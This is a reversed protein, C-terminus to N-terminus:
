ALTYDGRLFADAYHRSAEETHMLADIQRTFGILRGITELRVETEARPLKRLRGVVLDGSQRAAFDLHELIERVLTARRARREPDSAGGVFRFYVHNAEREDCLYADVMTYHYGLNLSLNVYSDSVVALNRGSNQGATRSTASALFTRFGVPVPRTSWVGPATLGAWLLRMPASRVADPRVPAGAPLTAVGPHLGGGVDIIRLNLPIEAELQRATEAGSVGGGAILAIIEEVAKEHSFRIVDHLTRCRDPRFQDSQPDVLELPTIRRLIRRLLRYEPADEIGPEELLQHLLLEEVRGRYVVIDDADITVEMGAPLRSTADGCDVIAPVRFERALAAMHGTPAGIDTVIAAIRPMVRVFHPSSRRAVLVAGPPVADLNGDGQLIHVRGVAVGRCAIHGRGELLIERARLVEPLNRPAGRRTVKLRRAQIVFLTGDADRAWEIDQPQKFYREIRLAMAALATAEDRALGPVVTVPAPAGTAEPGGASPRLTADHPPERSLTYTSFSRIGAVARDALGPTAGLQMLGSEPREPEVTYLVGATTAEVMRMCAVAMLGFASAGCAGRYSCAEPSYLSALVERYADVVGEVPVHLVTRYQGAFSLDDDEGLASSRVALRLPRGGADMARLAKGIARRVDGPVAATRLRRCVDEMAHVDGRATREISEEIVPELRNEELIRIYAHTTITFGDPIPIQLRSSIEGLHASKGGVLDANGEDIRSFPLCYETRPVVPRGAVDGLADARLRDVLLYLAAYRQDAISNLDYVVRDGLDFLQDVIAAVYHRDFVYEGSEKEAADALIQLIRTNNDLLNRFRVFLLRFPM